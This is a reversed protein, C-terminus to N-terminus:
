HAKRKSTKRKRDRRRRRTGGGYGYSIRPPPGRKPINNKHEEMYRAVYAQWEANRHAKLAAFRTAAKQAQEQKFQELIQARAASWPMGKTELFRTRVSNYLPSPNNLRRITREKKERANRNANSELAEPPVPGYITNGMPPSPAVGRMINEYYAPSGPPFASEM